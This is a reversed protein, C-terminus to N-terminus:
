GAVLPVTATYSIKFEAINGYGGVPALYRVCRCFASVNVTTLTDPPTASITALKPTLSTTQRPWLSPVKLSAPGPGSASSAGIAMSQVVNSVARGCAGPFRGVFHM